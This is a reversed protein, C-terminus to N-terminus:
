GTVRRATVRLGPRAGTASEDLVIPDGRIEYVLGRVRLRDAASVATGPPLVVSLETTAQQRWDAHDEGTGSTSVACGPVVTPTWRYRDNGYADTGAVARRLVTVTEGFAPGYAGGVIVAIETHDPTPLGGADYLTTDSAYGVRGDPLTIRSGPPCAAAAEPEAFVTGNQEAGDNGYGRRTGSAAFQVLCRMPAAPGYVGWTGTFPEVQVTHRLLYRPVRGM